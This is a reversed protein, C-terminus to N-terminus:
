ATKEQDREREEKLRRKWWSELALALTMVVWLAAAEWPKEVYLCLLFITELWAIAFLIGLVWSNMELIGNGQGM